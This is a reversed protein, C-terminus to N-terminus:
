ICFAHGSVVQLWTGDQGNTASLQVLEVVWHGDSSMWKM